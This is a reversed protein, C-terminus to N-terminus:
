LISSTTNINISCIIARHLYVTEVRDSYVHDYNDVYSYMNLKINLNYM